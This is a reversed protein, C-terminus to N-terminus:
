VAQTINDNAAVRDAAGERPADGDHGAFVAAPPSVVDSVPAELAIHDGRAGARRPPVADRAVPDLSRAPPNRHPRVDIVRRPVADPEAAVAVPCSARSRKTSAM